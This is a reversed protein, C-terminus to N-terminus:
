DEVLFGYDEDSLFDLSFPMVNVFQAASQDFNGSQFVMQNIGFIDLYANVVRISEQKKLISNLLKLENYPFEHMSDVMLSGSITVKYDSAQILEKVSGNRNVLPTCKITNEPVVKVKADIFEIQTGDNTRLLLNNRPIESIFKRKYGFLSPVRLLMADIDDNALEGHLASSYNSQKNNIADPMTAGKDNLASFYASQKAYAMGTTAGAQEATNLANAGIYYAERKDPLTIRIQM